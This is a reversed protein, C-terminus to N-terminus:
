RNPYSFNHLENQKRLDICIDWNEKAEEKERKAEYVNKDLDKYIEREGLSM